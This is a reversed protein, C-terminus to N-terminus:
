KVPTYVGSLGQLRKWRDTFGAPTEALGLFLVGHEPMHSALRNLFRTKVEPEFYILVNRCFVIDSQGFAGVDELLNIPAFRVQRRLVDKVYWPLEEKPDQTFYRMLLQIPLGRQVEFQTYRGEQARELMAHNLDTGVIEPTKGQLLERHEALMMAISYPEQGSSCAASWIRLVPATLKPVVYPLVHTHLLEFPTRDRFFSTENTTLAEVVQQILAEEKGDRLAAALAAVDKLGQARAIPLLRTHVLYGQEAALSVGSRQQMMQRLFDFDEPLLPIQPDERM